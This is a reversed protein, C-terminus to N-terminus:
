RNRPPTPRVRGSSCRRCCPRWRTSSTAANWRATCRPRTTPNTGCTGHWCAHIAGSNVWWGPSTTRCPPPTDLTTWGTPVRGSGLGFQASRGRACAASGAQSAPGLVLRVPRVPTQDGGPEGRHGRVARTSTPIGGATRRGSCITCSSGCRTSGSNAPSPLSPISADRTTPAQQFMEIQNIATAPVYNAGGGALRPESVLCQRSRGDLPGSGGLRLPIRTLAAGAALVLPLKLATRRRVLGGYTGLRGPRGRPAFQLREPESDNGPAPPKRGEPPPHGHRRTRGFPVNTGVEHGERHRTVPHRRYCLCDKCPPRVSLDKRTIVIRM